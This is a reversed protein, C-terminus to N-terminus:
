GAIEMATITSVGRFYFSSDGNAGAVNIALTGAVVSDIYNQLKYTVASTSSPSDLHSVTTSLLKANGSASDNDASLAGSVRIRSGASDGIAIETSNRVFRIGAYLNVGGGYSITSSLFVKSSTSKPTISVSLGTIDTWTNTTSTTFIDTKTTSVVQLVTGNTPTTAAIYRWATGNWIAVMDTDTEYIMQGEFPATPRTTSTCVGPTLSGTGLASSIAM